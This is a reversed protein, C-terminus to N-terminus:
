EYKRSQPHPPILGGFANIVTRAAYAHALVFATVLPQRMQWRESRPCLKGRGDLVESALHAYRTAISMVAIRLDSEGCIEHCARACSMRVVKLGAEEVWPIISCKSLRLARRADVEDEIVLTQADSIEVIDEIAHRIVVIQSPRTTCRHLCSLKARIVTLRPSLCVLGFRRKCSSIAVVPLASM